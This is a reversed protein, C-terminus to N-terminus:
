IIYLLKGTFCADRSFLEQVLMRKLVKYSLEQFLQFNLIGVGSTWM